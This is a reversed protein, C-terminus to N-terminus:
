LHGSVSPAIVTVLRSNLTERGTGMFMAKGTCPIVRQHLPQLTIGCVKHDSVSALNLLVANITLSGGSAHDMRLSTLDFERCRKLPKSLFQSHPLFAHGMSQCVM